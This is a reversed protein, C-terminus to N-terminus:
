GYRVRPDLLAYTMDTLLNIVVMVVGYMLLIGMVMPFDRQLMRTFALRGIGPWSFVTEVAVTGGMLLAVQLGIATVVPLMANRLAHKLVAVRRPAGKAYATRVYDEHLVELLGSRVLRMLIASLATGLALSPLVLHKPTGYGAIPLVPWFFAFLLILMLGVWFSPFSVGLLAVVRSLHDIWSNHFVAALIGTTTGLVIAVAMSGAMLILTAPLHQLITPLVPRRDLLSIGFDGRVADWLWSAYRVHLPRNLGLQERILDLVEKTARDGVIALAPDGGSVHLTLFIVVTM